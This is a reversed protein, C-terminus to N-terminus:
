ELESEETEGDPVRQGKLMRGPRPIAGYEVEWMVLGEPPATKGAKKRDKAALLQIFSDPSRQGIGVDYLTGAIIRVMQQLFATGRIEFTIREGKRRVEAKLIKRVPTKAACAAARFSSFDHEGVLHKAARAMAKDDLPQRSYWSWHKWFPSHAPGDFYTYRYTKAIADRRPDFVEPMEDCSRVRVIQPLLGNLGKLIQDCAKESSTSFAAVQGKAHVGADTRGAGMVKPKDKLLVALKEDLLDQLNAANKQSQWGHFAGGDYELILRIRRTV